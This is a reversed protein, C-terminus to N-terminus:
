TQGNRMENMADKLNISAENNVVKKNKFVPTTELSSSHNINAKIKGTELAHSKESDIQNVGILNKSENIDM